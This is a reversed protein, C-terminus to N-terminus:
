ERRRSSWHLHLIRLGGDAPVLVYSVAARYTRTEGDLEFAFEGLQRVLFGEGCSEALEEKTTFRFDGLADHEPALHHEKYHEWSGEDSGNEFVSSHGDPVFLRDLEDLDGGSIGAAYARGVALADEEAPEDAEQIPACPALADWLTGLPALAALTAACLATRAISRTM